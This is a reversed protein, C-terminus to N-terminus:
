AELLDPPASPTLLGLLSARRVAEKRTSVELGKYIVMLEHGVTSLGLYLEKAIQHNSMGMAVFRLIDLERESFKPRAAPAAYTNKEAPQWVKVLALAVGRAFTSWLSVQTSIEPDRGVVIVLVAAVSERQHIPVFVVFHNKDIGPWDSNEASLAMLGNRFCQTLPSNQAYHQGQYPAQELAKVGFQSILPISFDNELGFLLASRTEFPRLADVCLASLMRSLSMETTSIHFLRTLVHNEEAATLLM